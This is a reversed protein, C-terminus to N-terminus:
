VNVREKAARDTLADTADAFFWDTGTEGTLSDAATDPAVASADLPPVAGQRSRVAYVKPSNKVLSLRLLSGPDAEWAASGSVLLDNQQGGRLADAGEGGILIDNGGGGALADDGAGGLLVDKGKGGTLVDNGDGGSLQVSKKFVGVVDVRDDGPGASVIVRSFQAQRFTGVATGASQVTVVGRAAAVALADPGSTGNVYLAQKGAKWPDPALSASVVDHNVITLAATVPSGLGAPLSATLTISLTEDPEPTADNVVNVSIVKSSEGPGFAISGSAPVYDSGATATGDATGYRVTAGATLDGTRTVTIVFASANEAVSYAAQDFQVFSTPSALQLEYAGADFAGGAPRPNGEIDGAPAQQASGANVAPSQPALRFNDSDPSVFVAASTSVVSQGELGRALRWAELGLRQTGDSFLDTVVNYESATGSRSNVDTLCTGNGPNNNLLINNRFTNRVSGGDLHVAWGGDFAVVVTNNVLLNDTSGAAANGARVGIGDGHSNYVLNNVINSARAGSLDISAGGGRGHGLLTNREVRTGSVVGDSGQADKDGDLVIGQLFNDFVRNGVIAGGDAGGNIVIGPGQGTRGVTNGEISVNQSATALIGFATNIDLLNGRVVVGTNNATRIGVACGIVQFGEVTVYDAGDLDVGRDSVPSRTNIVAGSDGHFTIRAAATGDTALTFGAYSGARATVM